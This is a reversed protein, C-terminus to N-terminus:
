PFTEEDGGPLEDKREGEDDEDKVGKVDVIAGSSQV